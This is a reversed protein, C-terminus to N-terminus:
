YFEQGSDISMVVESYSAGSAYPIRSYDRQINNLITVHYFVISRWPTTNFGTTKDFFKIIYKDMYFGKNYSLNKVWNPVAITMKKERKLSYDFSDSQRTLMDVNPAKDSLWSDKLEGPTFAWIANSRRMDGNEGEFRFNDHIGM